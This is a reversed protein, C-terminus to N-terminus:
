PVQVQLWGGPCAPVYPYYAQYVPCYLHVLVPQPQIVIPPYAPYPQHAPYYPRAALAGLVGLGVGAGLGWWLASNGHDGHHRHHYGGRYRGGAWSLSVSSVLLGVVVFLVIYRRM